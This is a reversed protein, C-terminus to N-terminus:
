QKKIVKITNINGNNHLLEVFYMGQPYSQFSVITATEKKVDNNYVLMGSSNFIKLEIIESTKLMEWNINLEDVM